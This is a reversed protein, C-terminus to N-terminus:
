VFHPWGQAPQRKAMRAFLCLAKLVLKVSKSEPFEIGGLYISGLTKGRKAPIAFLFGALSPPLVIVDTLQQSSWSSWALAFGL